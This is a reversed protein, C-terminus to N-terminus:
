IIPIFHKKVIEQGEASVVWDVFAQVLPTTEMQLVYIFPRSIKYTGTKINDVTAEVGDVKVAKVDASISGTSIYGIGNKDGAVATRVAGTSNQVNARDFIKGDKGLVLEEFAGRTGSGEERTYVVIPAKTGGVQSWDNIEGTYIKRIDEISLDSINNDNNVVVAIGDLCIVVEKIGTKEEPKLERSSAGIDATKEHAAKIGAGSGGGAVNIRVKPNKSMFERALEESIPQVSTSGAIQITGSLEVDKSDEKPQAQQRGCGAALTAALFVVFLTFIIKGLRSNSM